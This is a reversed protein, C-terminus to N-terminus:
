GLTPELLYKVHLKITGAAYTASAATSTVRIKTAATYKYFMAGTGAALTNIYGGAQGITSANIFRAPSSADGVSLTLTPSGNADMDPAALGVYTIIAGAPVWLMDTYEGAALTLPIFEAYANIEQSSWGQARIPGTGAAQNTTYNPM